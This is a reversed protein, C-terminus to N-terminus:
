EPTAKAAKTPKWVGNTRATLTSGGTFQIATSTVDAVIKGYFTTTLSGPAQETVPNGLVTGSLTIKSQSEDLTFEVPTVTSATASTASIMCASLLGFAFSSKPINM